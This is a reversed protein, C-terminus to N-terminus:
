FPITKDSSLEIRESLYRPKTSMYIETRTFNEIASIFSLLDFTYGYFTNAQQWSIEYVDNKKAIIVNPTDTGRLGCHVDHMMYYRGISKYLSGVLPDIIPDIESGKTEELILYNSLKKFAMTVSIDPNLYDPLEENLLAYKSELLWAILLRVDEKQSFIKTTVNADLIELIMDAFLESGTPAITRHADITPNLILNLCAM